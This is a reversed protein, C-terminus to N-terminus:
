RFTSKTEEILTINSAEVGLFMIFVMKQLTVGYLRTLMQRGEPTFMVEM